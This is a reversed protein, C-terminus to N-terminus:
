NKIPKVTSAVKVGKKKKTNRRMKRTNLLAKIKKEESDDSEDLFALENFTSKQFRM